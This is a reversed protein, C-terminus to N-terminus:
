HSLFYAMINIGTMISERHYARKIWSDRPDAWGCHIDADCLFVALRDGVFVGSNGPSEGNPRKWRRINPESVNYVTTYVEHDEPIHKVSDQGFTAVLSAYASNYFDSARNPSGCEDMLVAGGDLVYQKLNELPAKAMRFAGTGMMFLVPFKRMEDVSKLDVLANFHQPLGNEPYENKVNDQLKVKVRLVQSLQELLNKDGGPGFDWDPNNNCIRTLLFDYKDADPPCYSAGPVVSAAAATVASTLAGAAAISRAIFERRSPNRPTIAM